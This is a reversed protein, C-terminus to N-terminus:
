RNAGFGRKSWYLTVQEDTRLGKVEASVDVTRGALAEANGPVIGTIQVRKAPDISALPAVLRSASAVSSKPSAVIYGALLAFVAAAAIWWSFTGTAESPLADHSKLLSAARSGIVRIVRARVGREPADSKLTVYSTLQERFNPNDQELAWAAYEDSVSSTLVPWAKRVLTWIAVAVLAVLCGMRVWTGPSYIWHDMILWILIASMSGIAVM